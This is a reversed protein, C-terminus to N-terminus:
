RSTTRSGPSRGRPRAQELTAVVLDLIEDEDGEIDLDIDCYSPEHEATLLTGGGTVSCGPAQEDLVDQLPDEYLEGRDLPRLKANLSVWLRSPM